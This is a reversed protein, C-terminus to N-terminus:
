EIKVKSKYKRGVRIRRWKVSWKKILMFLRKIVLEKLSEKIKNNNKNEIKKQELKALKHKIITISHNLRLSMSQQEIPESYVKAGM